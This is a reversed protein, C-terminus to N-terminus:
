RRHVRRVCGSSKAEWYSKGSWDVIQAKGQGSVLLQGNPLRDLGCADPIKVERLTQGNSDVERVFGVGYNAVLYRGGPLADLDGWTGEATLSVTRVKKGDPGIDYITGAATIGIFHGNATRRVAHLYQEAIKYRYVISKDPRVEMVSFRTAVFTNQNPLRRCNIAEEDTDFQWLINGKLDRETIRKPTQEAILVRNGPLVQADMPGEASVTWRRKGDRGCEWVSNTNYEIGVWLGLVPPEAPLKLLDIGAGSKKWWTTWKEQYAKRSEPKNDELAIPSAEGAIRQLREEARWAVEEVKSALLGILATVAAKDGGALLGEAARFQVTADKDSLLQRAFGRDDDATSRGLVFGAAARRAAFRDKAAERFLPDPDGKVLGVLVLTTLAEEEVSMDEAFPLYAILVSVTQAPPTKRIQRLAAIPLSPGPGAKIREILRECREAIETDPDNTSNELIHLAPLGIALLEKASKDRVPFRGNGLQRILDRIHKIKGDDLTRARFFELLGPGDTAIAHSKLLALDYADDSTSTIRQRDAALSLALLAWCVPTMAAEVGIV